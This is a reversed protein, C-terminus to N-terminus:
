VAEASRQRIAQLNSLHGVVLSLGAAVGIVVGVTEGGGEELFRSALLGVIGVGLISAIWWSQHKRWGLVLAAVGLVVALLTFTWEAEHTLLAGLGWAVLLTPLLACLACHVACLASALTGLRDM